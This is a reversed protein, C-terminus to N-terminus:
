AHRNGCCLKACKTIQRHQQQFHEGVCITVPFSCYNNKNLEACKKSLVCKTLTLHSHSINVAPRNMSNFM